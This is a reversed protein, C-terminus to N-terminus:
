RSPRWPEDLRAKFYIAAACIEPDTKDRSVLVAGGARLAQLADPIITKTRLRQFLNLTGTCEADPKMRWALLLAPTIFNSDSFGKTICDMAKNWDEASCYAGISGVELNLCGKASLCELPYYRESDKPEVSSVRADAKQDSEQTEM